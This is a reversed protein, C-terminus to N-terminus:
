ASMATTVLDFAITPLGRTAPTAPITGVALVLFALLGPQSSAIATLKLLPEVLELLHQTGMGLNELGGHCRALGRSWLGHYGM